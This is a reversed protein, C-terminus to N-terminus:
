FRMRAGVQITPINIQVDEDVSLSAGGTKVEDISFQMIRFNAGGYLDMVDSMPAVIDFGAQYVLASLSDAKFTTGAEKAKWSVSGPGVGLRWVAFVNDGISYGYGAKILGYYPVDADVSSSAGGDKDKYSLRGTGLEFSLEFRAWTDRSMGYGPEVGLFWATGSSGKGVKSAQGFSFAAGAYGGSKNRDVPDTTQAMAMGGLTLGLGLGFGFVYRKKM